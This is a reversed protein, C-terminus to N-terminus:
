DGNEQLQQKEKLRRQRAYERQYANWREKNRSKWKSQGELLEEKNEIYYIKDYEKRAEKQEETRQRRRNLIKEKNMKYYNRSYENRKLRKDEENM